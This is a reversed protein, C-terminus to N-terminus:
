LDGERGGAAPRRTQEGAQDALIKRENLDANSTHATRGDAEAYAAAASRLLRRRQRSRPEELRSGLRSTEAKRRRGEQRRRPCGLACAASPALSRRRLLSGNGWQCLETEWSPFVSPPPSSGARERGAEGTEGGRRRGRRGGLLFGAPSALSTAPMARVGGGCVAAQKIRRGPKNSMDPYCQRQKWISLSLIHEGAVVMIETSWATALHSGSTSFTCTLRSMM